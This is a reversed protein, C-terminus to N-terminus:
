RVPHHYYSRAGPAFWNRANKRAMRGADARVTLFRSISWYFYKILLGRQKNRALIIM